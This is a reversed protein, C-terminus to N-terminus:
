LRPNVVEPLSFLTVRDHGERKSQLLAKEATAILMESSFQPQPTSTAVGISVTVFQSPFGSVKSQDHLLGRAKVQQRIFEAVEAAVITDTHPMLAAFKTGGSQVRLISQHRVCDHITSAIKQICDDGALQGHADTYFKFYDVECLIVTLETMERTWQQWNNELYESFYQWTIPQNNENKTSINIKGSTIINLNDLKPSEKAKKEAQILSSDVGKAVILHQRFYLRYLECSLKAQNGDLKILGLSELKYATIAELQVAERTTVIQQLASALEARDRLLVLLSRLYNGYIGAQTSASQLLEELTMEQRYLHYLALSVLFPHGGVMEVLPALRLAGEGSAWDLGYRQALVIVQDLTFPLLRILRWVNFPSQNCKLPLYIEPTHVLILRLKQWIEVQHVQEHWFGLMSLFDQGISPYEFVRNLENVALLLPVNLQELLYQEFYLKCSVKSGMDEDWYEELKSQLKLQRSINFCFWRLFKDLSTFISDDAERLDLYVTEYGQTKAYAIVRNLLSSKGMKIPAKISIFCGPQSIGTYAFEEVPPRNIYVPSNLPLPVGPFEIKTTPVESEFYNETKGNTQLEQKLRIRRGDTYAQLYDKITLQLNKKTVREGLAGSLDHWLKSGIEKIYVSGYNSEQAMEDYKRADWSQRLVFRETPRLQRSLLVQEIIELAEDVNIDGNM